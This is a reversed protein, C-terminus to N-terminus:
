WVGSPATTSNMSYESDGNSFLYAPNGIRGTAKRRPELGDVFPRSPKFFRGVVRM